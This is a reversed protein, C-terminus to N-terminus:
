RADEAEPWFPWFGYDAGDGESAGFYCGEPAIENLDDFLADVFISTAEADPYDGDELPQPEWGEMSAAREPSYERLVSMFAPILDEYRMTGSSVSGIPPTVM